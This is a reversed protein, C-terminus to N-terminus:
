YPQLTQESAFQHVRLKKIIELIDIEQSLKSKASEFLKDKRNQRPRLCCCYFKDFRWFCWFSRYNYSFTERCEIEQRVQGLEVQARFCLQLMKM